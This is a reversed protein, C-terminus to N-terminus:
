SNIDINHGSINSFISGSNDPRSNIQDYQNCYNKALDLLGDFAM